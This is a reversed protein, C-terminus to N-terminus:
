SVMVTRRFQANDEWYTKKLELEAPQVRGSRDTARSVVTHQGAALPAAELSWFTWAFPDSQPDLKAAQWAREDVQVEVRKLPTGDTWAVGFVKIRGTGLPASPGTGPATSPGTARSRTVRAVVSKVRQRAVATEVWEVREGVKRGMVTVYDRGMFRNMLRSASAEIATLWKVNAIGYWGPVILRLPAGHEVPLPQGNMEYALMPDAQMVEDLSMSRAFNQVYKGGRITEEGQDAAWFVVDKTEPAPKEERLLERLSAGAWTANGVMGHLTRAQNGSCEFVLRREVRPRKRIEDLTLTRLQGVLGRVELRFAAPDITPLNYHQVAFFADNPTVWSRLERLDLRVVREGARTTFNEPIDTFPVVEEQDDGAAWSLPWSWAPFASVTLAVGALGAQKLVTRRSPHAQLDGAEAM